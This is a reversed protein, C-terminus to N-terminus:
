KVCLFTNEHFKVSLGVNASTACFILIAKTDILDEGPDSQKCNTVTHASHCSARYSGSKGKIGKRLRHALM